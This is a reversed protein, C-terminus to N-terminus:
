TAWLTIFPKCGGVFRLQRSKMTPRCSLIPKPGSNLRLGDMSTICGCSSNGSPGASASLSPGARNATRICNRLSSVRPDILRFQPIRSTGSKLGAKASKGKKRDRKPPPVYEPIEMGETEAYALRRTSSEIQRLVLLIASRVFRPLTEVSDTGPEIGARAFLVALLRLLALRYLEIMQTRSLM